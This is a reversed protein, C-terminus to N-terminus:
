EQQWFLVDLQKHKANELPVVKLIIQMSTGPCCYENSLNTCLLCLVLLKLAWVSNEM